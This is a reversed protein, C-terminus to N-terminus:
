KLDEIKSIIAKYRTANEESECITYPFRIMQGGLLLFFLDTLVIGDVGFFFTCVAGGWLILGGVLFVIVVLGAM